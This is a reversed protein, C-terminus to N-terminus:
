NIENDYSLLDSKRRLVRSLSSPTVGIYSAIYEQKLREAMSPFAEVFMKYREEADLMLLQYSRQEEKIFAEMCLQNFIQECRKIRRFMTELDKVSIAALVMDEIAEIRFEYPTRKIYNYVGCWMGEAAFCKTFERGDVDFYVGRAIGSVVLFVKDISEEIDIIVEKKKVTEMHFASAIEMSEEQTFGYGKLYEVVRAKQNM